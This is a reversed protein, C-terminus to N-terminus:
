QKNNEKIADYVCYFCLGFIISWLAIGVLSEM